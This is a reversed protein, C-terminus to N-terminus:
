PNAIKQKVKGDMQGASIDPLPISARLVNLEIRMVETLAQIIRDGGFEQQLEGVTTADETAQFATDIAAQNATYDVLAADLDPQSVDAVELESNSPRFGIQGKVVSGAHAALARVNHGPQVTIKAM